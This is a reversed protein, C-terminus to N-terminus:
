TSQYNKKYLILITSPIPLVNSQWMHQFNKMLISPVKKLGVIYLEISISKYHSYLTESSSLTSYFSSRM